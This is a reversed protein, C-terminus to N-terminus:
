DDREPSAPPEMLIWSALLERQFNKTAMIGAGCWQTRHTLAVALMQLKGAAILLIGKM